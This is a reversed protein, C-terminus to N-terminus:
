QGGGEETDVKLQRAEYRWGPSDVREKAGANLTNATRRAETETTM